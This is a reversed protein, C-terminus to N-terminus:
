WIDVHEPVDGWKHTKLLYEASPPGLDAESYPNDKNDKLLSAGVNPRLFSAICVREGDMKSARHEMLYRPFVVNTGPNYAFCSGLPIELHGRCYLSYMSLVDPLMCGGKNDWHFEREQNAIVAFASFPSQWLELVAETLKPVALCTRVQYMELLVLLHTNYVEPYIISLMVGGIGAVEQTEELFTM